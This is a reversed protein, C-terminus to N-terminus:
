AIVDKEEGPIAKNLSDLVVFKIVKVKIDEIPISLKKIRKANIEAFKALYEERSSYGEAHAAEESIDGLREEWRDVIYLRAFYEKSLLQTKALHKSRVNARWRSWIRRTETKRGALIPGIHEPKFLIM